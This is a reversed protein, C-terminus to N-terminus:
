KRLKGRLMKIANRFEMPDSAFMSGTKIAIVEATTNKWRVRPMPNVWVFHPANILDIFALTETVRDWNMMGRAAGADSFVLVSSRPMPLFDAIDIPDYMEADRFLYDEPINNFYFVDLERFHRDQRATQIMKESLGSFAIMSTSADILVTLSATNQPDARLVPKGLFGTRAVEKVTKEIDMKRKPGVEQLSRMSRWAQKLVRNPLLYDDGQIIFAKEFIKQSIDHQSSDMRIGEVGADADQFFISIMEQEEQVETTEKPTVDTKPSETDEDTETGQDTTSEGKKEKGSETTKTDTTTKPDSPKSKLDSKPKLTSFYQYFMRDFDEEEHGPKLLVTKCLMLLDEQEFLGHGKALEELLLLFSEPDSTLRGYTREHQRWRLFFPLLPIDHLNGM